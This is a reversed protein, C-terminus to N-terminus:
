NSENDKNMEDFLENLIKKDVENRFQKDDFIYDPLDNSEDSFITKGGDPKAITANLTDGKRM